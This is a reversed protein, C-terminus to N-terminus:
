ELPACGIRQSASPRSGEAVISEAIPPAPLFSPSLSFVPACAGSPSGDIWPIRPAFTGLTHCSPQRQNQVWCCPSLKVQSTRGAERPPSCSLSSCCLPLLYGGAQGSARLARCAVAM